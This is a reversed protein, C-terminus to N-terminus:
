AVSRAPNMWAFSCPRRLAIRAARRRRRRLPGAASATAAFTANRRGSTRRGRPGADPHRPRRGGGPPRGRGTGGVGHEIRRRRNRITERALGTAASVLADGGYGIARSETAAWVRRGREDLLSAIAAYKEVIAAELNIDREM